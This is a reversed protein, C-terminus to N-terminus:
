RIPNPNVTVSKWNLLGADAGSYRVEALFGIMAANDISYQTSPIAVAINSNTCVEALRRRLESNASVGGSVTVSRAGYITVARMARDILVDVIATQVSACIDKLSHRIGEQVYTRVATKLGSFSMDLTDGRRMGRPFAIANANGNKALRDIHPGGPYGLGLMKAVKDFAEGAADDRTSGVVRYQMMDDIVVIATHGGSVVLGVSPFPVDQNELFASYIHAEIHHIPILPVAHALALGKAFNLGVVLSGALGPGTTVAIADINQMTCGAEALAITTLPAIAKVHERSALEPVIGGYTDHIPQSSVVSSLVVRDRVVAVATDDCSTEIALITV